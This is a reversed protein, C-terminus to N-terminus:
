KVGPLRRVSDSIANDRWEIREPAVEFPQTHGDAYQVKKLCGSPDCRESIIQIEKGQYYPTQEGCSTLIPLSAIAICFITSKNM